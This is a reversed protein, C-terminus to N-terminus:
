VKEAEGDTGQSDDLAERQEKQWKYVTDYHKLTYRLGFLLDNMHKRESETMEAYCNDFGRMLQKIGVELKKKSM